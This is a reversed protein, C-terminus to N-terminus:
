RTFLLWGLVIGLAMIIGNRLLLFAFNPDKKYKRDFNSNICKECKSGYYKGHTICVSM